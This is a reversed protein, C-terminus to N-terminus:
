SSWNVRTRESKPGALAKWERRSSSVVSRGYCCLVDRSQLHGQPQHRAATTQGWRGTFLVRTRECNRSMGMLRMLCKSNRLTTRQQMDHTNDPTVDHHLTGDAWAVAPRARTNGRLYVEREHAAMRSQGFGNQLLLYLTDTSHANEATERAATTVHGQKAM